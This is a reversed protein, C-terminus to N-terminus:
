FLGYANKNIVHTLNKNIWSKARTLQSRSTEEKIGLQKGIEKHSYDDIVSLMFVLKYGQPMSILMKDIDERTINELGHEIGPTINDNIEVPILMSVKNKKRLYMLCENVTIKRLWTNFSGKNPNFSKINLFVKAFSEQVLDQQDEISFVYRKV